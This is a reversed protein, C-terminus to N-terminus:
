ATAVRAARPLPPRRAEVIAAGSGPYIEAGNRTTAAVAEAATAFTIFAFAVTNRRLM